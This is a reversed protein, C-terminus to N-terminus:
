AATDGALAFNAGAYFLLSGVAYQGALKTQSQRNRLTAGSGSITVQGAGLQIIMCAFGAGLDPVTLAIASANSLSVIKGKDSASLTYSTGTQANIEPALFKGPITDGDELERLATPTASAYGESDNSSAVPKLPVRLAM